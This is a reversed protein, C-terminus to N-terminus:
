QSLAPCGVQFFKKPISPPRLAYLLKMSDAREKIKAEFVSGFLNPAAISFVDENALNHIEPNIAKLIKRRCVRSIQAFANELLRIGDVTASRAEEMTIGPNDPDDETAKLVPILLGVPDLIFM